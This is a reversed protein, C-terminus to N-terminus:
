PGALGLVGGDRVEGHSPFRALDFGTGGRAAVPDGLVVLEQPDLPLQPLRGAECARARERAEAPEARRGAVPASGRIRSVKWPVSSPIMRRSSAIIAVPGARWSQASCWCIRLSSAVRAPPLASAVLRVARM